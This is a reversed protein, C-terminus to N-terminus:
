EPEGGPGAIAGVTARTARLYDGPSVLIQTGRVGASVSVVDFLEITEDAYVPYAKKAGLATVGGRVYGTLPQVEKLPVTDVKRDGTLRAMAKLDLQANGPVVAFCVGHRDGRAVLTKWVQEPPLGIKRAVTSATLDSPDVEYTRLEYQIGLSDLIRAANTKM